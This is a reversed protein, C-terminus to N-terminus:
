LEDHMKDLLGKIANKLKDSSEQDEIDNLTNLIEDFGKVLAEFCYKFKAINDSNTKSSVQKRLTELENQIEEPVKEVIEPVDIPKEKLQHELEKIKKLYNSLENEKNNIIKELREVEGSDSSNIAFELDTKLKKVILAHDKSQMNLKEYEVSLKQRAAEFEKALAQSDKLKRELELKEKIVKQLERTSMDEVDHEQIFEEREDAPISLLAVAQTYSLKAIAQSKHIEGELALQDQGYEEYIKMLNIATRQSYNVSDELWKGWEGHPVLQKAEVLRKGIEISSLLFIKQTQEKISNIESAILNTDRTILGNM